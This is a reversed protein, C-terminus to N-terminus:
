QSHSQGGILKIREIAPFEIAEAGLLGTSAPLLLCAATCEIAARVPPHISHGAITTLGVDLEVGESPESDDTLISLTWRRLTSGEMRHAHWEMRVRKANRLRQLRALTGQMDPEVQLGNMTVELHLTGEAVQRRPYYRLTPHVIGGPM